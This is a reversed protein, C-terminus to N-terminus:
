SRRAQMTAATALLRDARGAQRIRRLALKLRSRRSIESVDRAIRRV